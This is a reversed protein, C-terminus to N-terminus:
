AGIRSFSKAARWIRWQRRWSSVQPPKFPEYGAREMDRLWQWLPALSLFAPRADRPLEPGTSGVQALHLRARLRIEALVARLERTAHMAFIDEPDVGYHRLTDLPIFLQRRGAHRPLLALIDALTQANGAESALGAMAPSSDGTLIQAALEFITGATQAAYSNLDAFTAMADNYVDFRHAKVLDALKEAPLHHTSVITSLSAAIPHARAEDAREGSLVERWWQLRIEGPMPERAVARVRLIEVNFAYLAFLGDRAQEPAFLTALYRDRDVSRVLDACHKFDNM